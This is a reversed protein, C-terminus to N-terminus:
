GATTFLKDYNHLSLSFNWLEILIQKEAFKDGTKVSFNSLLELIKSCNKKDFRQNQQLLWLNEKYIYFKM